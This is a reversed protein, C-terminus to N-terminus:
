QLLSLLGASSRVVPDVWGITFDLVKRIAGKENKNKDTM